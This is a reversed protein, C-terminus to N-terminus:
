CKGSPGSMGFPAAEESSKPPPAKKKKKSQGKSDSAVLSEIQTDADGENDHEGVVKGGDEKQVVFKGKVKVKKYTM